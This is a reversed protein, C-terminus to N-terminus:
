EQTLGSIGALVFSGLVFGLARHFALYVHRWGALTKAIDEAGPAVSIVPLLQDLSFLLTAGPDHWHRGVHEAFVFSGVLTLVSAWALSRLYRYGIGYGITWKSVELGARSLWRSERREREKGAYRIRDAHEVEGQRVLVDALQRYPQPSYQKARALWAVLAKGNHDSVSSADSPGSLVFRRYTSGNLGLTSPMGRDFRKQRPRPAHITDVSANDLILATDRYWQASANASVLKLGGGIQASTLDLGVGFVAGTVDLDQRIRSRCLNVSSIITDTHLSIHGAQISDMDLKDAFRVHRTVITGRVRADWLYVRGFKADDRLFLNEGIDILEM